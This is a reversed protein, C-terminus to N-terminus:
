NFRYRTSCKSCVVYTTMGEDGSRDQQQYFYCKTSKCNKNRCTFEGEEIKVGETLFTNNFKRKERLNSYNSSNWSTRGNIIDKEVKKPDDITALCGVKEYAIFRYVDNFSDEYEEKIKNALTWIKKEFSKAKKTSFGIDELAKIVHQRDM